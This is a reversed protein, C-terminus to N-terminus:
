ARRPKCGTQALATGPLLLAAALLMGSLVTGVRGIM